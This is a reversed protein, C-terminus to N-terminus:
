RGQGSCSAKRSTERGLSRDQQAAEGLADGWGCPPSPSSDSSRKLSHRSAVGAVCAGEATSPHDKAIQSLIGVVSAALVLVDIVVLNRM